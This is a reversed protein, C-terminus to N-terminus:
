VFTPTPETLTPTESADDNDVSDRPVNIDDALNCDKGQRTDVLIVEACMDPLYPPNKVSKSSGIFKCALTVPPNTYEQLIMKAYRQVKISNTKDENVGHLKSYISGVPIQLHAKMLCTLQSVAYSREIGYDILLTNAEHTEGRKEVKLVLGRCWRELNRDFVACPFGARIFANPPPLTNKDNFDKYCTLSAEVCLQEEIRKATRLQIWMSDARKVSLIHAPQYDEFLINKADTYNYTDDPFAILEYRADVSILARFHGDEMREKLWIPLRDIIPKAVWQDDQQEIKIPIDVSLRKFFELVTRCGYDRIRVRIRNEKEFNIEWDDIKMVQGLSTFVMRNTKYKVIDEIPFNRLPPEKIQGLPELSQLMPRVNFPDVASLKNQTSTSSHGNTKIEINEKDSTKPRICIVSMMTRLEIRISEAIIPDQLLSTLNKHNYSACDIDEGFELKYLSTLHFIKIESSRRMLLSILRQRLHDKKAVMAPDDKKEPESVPTKHATPPRSIPWSLSSIAESSASTQTPTPLQTAFTPAVSPSARPASQQQAAPLRVQPPVMVGASTSSRNQRPDNSAMLKTSKDYISPPRSVTPLPPPSRRRVFQDRYTQDHNLRAPQHPRSSSYGSAYQRNLSFSRSALFRHSPRAFGGRTPKKRSGRQNTILDVLHTDVSDSKLNLSIYTMNYNANYNLNITDRICELAQLTSTKGYRKYWDPPEDTATPFKREFETISFGQPYDKLTQQLFGIVLAKIEQRDDDM